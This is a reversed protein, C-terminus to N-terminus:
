YIQNIYSPLNNIILYLNDYNYFTFIHRYPYITYTIQIKPEYKFISLTNKLNNCYFCFDLNVYYQAFVIKGFSCYFDQNNKLYHILHHNIKIIM